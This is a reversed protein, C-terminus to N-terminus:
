KKQVTAKMFGKLFTKESLTIMGHKRLQNEWDPLQDNKLDTTFKFFRYMISLLVRQWWKENKIFDTCLWRGDLQLKRSISDILPLLSAESFMDLFFNTIIVNFKMDSPIDDLTGCIFHVKPPAVNRTASKEIMKPSSDIYWVEVLGTIKFISKLIWGTGGGLILIRDGEKIETLFYEQAEVIRKGFVLRSLLDYYPAIGDFSSM